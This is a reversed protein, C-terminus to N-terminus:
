LILEIVVETVVVVVVVVVTEPATNPGGIYALVRAFVSDIEPTIIVSNRDVNGSAIDAADSTLKKKKAAALQSFYTTIKSTSLWTRPDRFSEDRIKFEPAM